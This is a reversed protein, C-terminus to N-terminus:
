SIFLIYELQNPAFIDANPCSYIISLFNKFEGRGMGEPIVSDEPWMVRMFADKDDDIIAQKFEPDENILTWAENSIDSKRYDLAM